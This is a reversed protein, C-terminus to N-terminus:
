ECPELTAYTGGRGTREIDDPNGEYCVSTYWVQNTIISRSAYIKLDANENDADILADTARL